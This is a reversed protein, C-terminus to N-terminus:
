VATFTLTSLYTGAKTSTPAYLNLSGTVYVTGVGQLATAFQHPAGKLGSTAYSANSPVFSTVDNVVIPKTSANLANGVLYRATVATFGLGHADITDNAPDVFDTASASATWTLDGSRTDTITVGQAPTAADGFAASATLYTATPDLAMTGLIFKPASPALVADYNYPTTITLTGPAVIVQIAQPDPTAGVSALTFSAAAGSSASFALADTPVFSATIVHAGAGLALTTLSAVGGSTASSGINGAISDTFTVTGAAVPSVTATVTTSSYAASGSTASASTTTAVNVPHVVYTAASSTSTGFAIGAPVYVATISHSGVALSGAGTAPVVLTVPNTGTYAGASGLASAGDYFQVAGNTISSSAPTVSASLTTTGAGVIVPSVPSSANLATTTTIAAALVPFSQTWSSGSVVVNATYYTNASASTYLRIQYTNANLSSASPFNTIHLALSEDTVASKIVVNSAPTQLGTPYGAQATTYAQSSTTQELTTWSGTPVGDQPTAITMQGLNFSYSGTKPGSAKYYAAMAGSTSGGSIQNGAADFFSITGASNPDPDFTAAAASASGAGAVVLGGALALAAAGAVVSKLNFKM